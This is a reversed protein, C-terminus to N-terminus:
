ATQESRAPDHQPAQEAQDVTVAPTTVARVSPSRRAQGLALLFDVESDLDDGPEPTADDLSRKPTVGNAKNRRAVELWSAVVAPSPQRQSAPGVAVTRVVHDMEEARVYDRLILIADRIEVVQRYLRLNTTRPRALLQRLRGSPQQLVVQPAAEVLDRWLPWLRWLAARHRAQRRLDILLPLCVGATMLWATIGINLPFFAGLAMPRALLFVLVILWFVTSSVFGAALLMLGTRLTRDAGARVAYRACLAASPITAVLHAAILLWWFPSYWPVVQASVCGAHPAITFNLLILTASVAAGLGYVLWPRRQSIAALIFDLILASALVGWVNMFLGCSNAFIFTRNLAASVPDLYVTISGALGAVAYLLMRQQRSHRASRVRLALAVWLALAGALEVKLGFQYIAALDM